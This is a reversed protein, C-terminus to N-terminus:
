SCLSLPVIVRILFCGPCFFSLVLVVDDLLDNNRALQWCAPPPGGM